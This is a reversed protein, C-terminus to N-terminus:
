FFCVFIGELSDQEISCDGPTDVFQKDIIVVLPLNPNFISIQQKSTKEQKAAPTSNNLSLTASTLNPKQSPMKSQIKEAKL